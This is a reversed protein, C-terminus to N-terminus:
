IGITDHNIINSINCIHSVLGAYIIRIHSHGCQAKVCTTISYFTYIKKIMRNRKNKIGNKKINTEVVLLMNYDLCAVNHRRKTAKM